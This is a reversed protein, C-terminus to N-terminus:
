AIPHLYIYVSKITGFLKKKQICLANKKKTIENHATGNPKLGRLLKLLVPLLSLSGFCILFVTYYCKIHLYRTSSYKNINM